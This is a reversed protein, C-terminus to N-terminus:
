RLPAGPAWAGQDQIVESAQQAARELLRQRAPPLKRPAPAFDMSDVDILASPNWCTGSFLQQISQSVSVHPITQEPAARLNGLRRKEIEEADAFWIQGLSPYKERFGPRNAAQVTRM